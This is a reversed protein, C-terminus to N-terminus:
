KSAPPELSAEVAASGFRLEDESETKASSVGKEEFSANYILNGNVQAGRVM